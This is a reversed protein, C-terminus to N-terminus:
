VEPSMRIYDIEEGNWDSFKLGVIRELKDDHRLEVKWCKHYWTKGGEQQWFEVFVCCSHREKAMDVTGLPINGFAFFRGYVKVFDGFDSCNRQIEHYPIIDDIWHRFAKDLEVRTVVNYPFGRVWCVDYTAIDLLALHVIVPPVTERNLMEDTVPIELTVDADELTETTITLNCGALLIALIAIASKM